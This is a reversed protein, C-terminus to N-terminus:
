LHAAIQASFTSVRTYLGPYHPRACGVGWSTIGAVIGNVVLPTGSDYTCTDTGGQEYDGACTYQAASYASGYSQQSACAPDAVVPVVAARLKGGALGNESTTGWGLIRAPTGPQYLGSDGPAAFRITAYKLPKSLTLVAVDNRYGTDGDFTFSAYGPDVWISSVTVDTGGSGLMDDRGAVVHLLGPAGQFATACHGATLVKTPTLLAGGCFAFPIVPVTLAVAWPYTKTSAPQGGVIAQAPAAPLVSAAATLLAAGAAVRACLGARLKPFRM